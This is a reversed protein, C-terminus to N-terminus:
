IVGIYGRGGRAQKGNYVDVAFWTLGLGTRTVWVQSHITGSRPVSKVHRRVTREYLGVLIGETRGLLQSVLIMILASELHTKGEGGLFDRTM